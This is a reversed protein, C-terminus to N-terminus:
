NCLLHRLHKRVVRYCERLKTQVSRSKSDFLYSTNQTSHTREVYLNSDCVNVFEHQFGCINTQSFLYNLTAPQILKPSNVHIFRRLFHARSVRTTPHIPKRECYQYNRALLLCYKFVPVYLQRAQRLMSVIHITSQIEPLVVVSPKYM